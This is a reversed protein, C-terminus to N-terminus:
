WWQDPWRAFILDMLIEFDWLIKYTENELISKINHMYWKKMHGFKFKKCLEWHIVKSVWDHRTRYERLALKSCENVIQNITENRDTCSRCKSNQQTEDIRAKFNDKHGQKTSSDSSIWNREEPKEKKATDLNEWSVNQKNTVQFTWLTIKRGMKIKQNNKNQQYKHLRNTEPWQLWDEEMSKQTSKKDNFQHMPAIKFVLLVEEEKKEQCICHM